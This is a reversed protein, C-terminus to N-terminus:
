RAQKQAKLALETALFVHAQPMSTEPSVIVEDRVLLYGSRDSRPRVARTTRTTARTLPNM